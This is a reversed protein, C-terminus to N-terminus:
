SGEEAAAKTILDECACQAGAHVVKIDECWLHKSDPNREWRHLRVGAVIGGTLFPV